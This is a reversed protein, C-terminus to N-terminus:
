RRSRGRRSERGTLRQAALEELSEEHQIRSLDQELDRMDDASLPDNADRLLAITAKRNALTDERAKKYLLLARQQAMTFTQHAHFIDEYTVQDTLVDLEAKLDELEHTERDTYCTLKDYREVMAKVRPIAEERNLAKRAALEALSAKWM